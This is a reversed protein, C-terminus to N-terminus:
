TRPKARSRSTSAGGSRAASVPKAARSSASGAKKTGSATKARSSKGDSTSKGGPARRGGRGGDEQAIEREARHWHEEHKGHPRGEREWIEHARQETRRERDASRM